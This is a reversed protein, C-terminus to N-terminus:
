AEFINKPNKLFYSTALSIVFGWFVSGFLASFALFTPNLMMTSVKMGMEIEEESSGNAMMTEEMVNAIEQISEPSIYTYFLYTFFAQIIGAFLVILVGSGLSRGYSIYGDQFSDRLTKTGMFVAVAMFVITAYGAIKSQGLDFFHLVITYIVIVLGLILGYNAANKYISNKNYETEM